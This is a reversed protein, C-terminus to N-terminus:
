RRLKPLRRYAELDHPRVYDVRLEELQPPLVLSLDNPISDFHDIDLKRLTRMGALMALHQGTPAFLRLRRLRPPLAPIPAENYVDRSLCDDSEDIILHLLLERLQSLGAIVKLHEPYPHVVDLRHAHPGARQLLPLAYRTNCDVGSICPM